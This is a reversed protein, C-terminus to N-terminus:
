RDPRRGGLRVFSALLLLGGAHQAVVAALVDAVNNADLTHIAIERQTQLAKGSTALHELVLVVVSITHHVPHRYGYELLVPTSVLLQHQQFSNFLMTEAVPCIHGLVQSALALVLALFVIVTHVQLIHRTLPPLISPSAVIIDHPRKNKPPQENSNSTRHKVPENEFMNTGVNGSM